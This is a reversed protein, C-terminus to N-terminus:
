IPSFCKQQSDPDGGNHERSHVNRFFGPKAAVQAPELLDLAIELECNVPNKVRQDAGPKILFEHKAPKQHLSERHQKTSVATSPDDGVDHLRHKESHRM